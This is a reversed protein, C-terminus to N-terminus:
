GIHTILYKMEGLFERLMNNPLFLKTSGAAIGSIDGLDEGRAIQLARYLHFNNTVLGIKANSEAILKKSYKINQETTTSEKELLIREKAIGKKELYTAMGEAEAFPENAGQGGSVICKTDPNEELYEVAKDLRYKLVISPGSEHVQAGLVIIYDLNPEGHKTFGTIILGEVIVVCVVAAVIVVSLIKRVVLSMRKWLSKKAVLAFAGFMIGMTWWVIFFSTGSGVARVIVGYILCLIAIVLWLTVRVKKKM